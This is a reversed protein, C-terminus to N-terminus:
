AAVNLKKRWNPYIADADGTKDQARRMADAVLTITEKLPRGLVRWLDAYRNSQDM